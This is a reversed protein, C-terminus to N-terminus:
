SGTTGDERITLGDDSKNRKQKGIIAKEEENEYYGKM